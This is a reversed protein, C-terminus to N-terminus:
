SNAFKLIDKRSESFGCMENTVYSVKVNQCIKISYNWFTHDCREGIIILPAVM